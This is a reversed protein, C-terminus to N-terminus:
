YGEFEPYVENASFEYREHRFWWYAAAAIAVGWMLTNGSIGANQVPVAGGAKGDPGVPAMLYPAYEAWNAATPTKDFPLRVVFVPAGVIEALREKPLRYVTWTAKGYAGKAGDCVGAQQSAIVFFGAKSWNDIAQSADVSAGPATGGSVNDCIVGQYLAGTADVMRGFFKALYSQSEPRPAGSEDFWISKLGSPMSFGAPAATPGPTPEDGLVGLGRVARTNWPWGPANYQAWYGESPKVCGGAQVYEWSKHGSEQCIAPEKTVAGLGNLKIGGKISNWPWMPAGYIAEYGPSPKVCGGAQMYQAATKGSSGCVAPMKSVSGLSGLGDVDQSPNGLSTPRDNGWGSTNVAPIGGGLGYLPQDTAIYKHRYGPTSGFYSM